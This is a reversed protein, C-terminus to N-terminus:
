LQGVRFLHRSPSYVRPNLALIVAKSNGPPLRFTHAALRPVSTHWVRDPMVRPVWLCADFLRCLKVRLLGVEDKTMAATLRIWSHFYELQRYRIRSLRGPEVPFLTDFICRWEHGKVSRFFAASWIGRLDARMFIESTLSGSTATDLLFLPAGEADREHAAKAMVDRTMQDWIDEALRSMFGDSRFGDEELVILNSYAGNSIDLTPEVPLDMTPPTLSLALARDHRILTLNQVAKEKRCTMCTPIQEPSETWDRLTALPTFM